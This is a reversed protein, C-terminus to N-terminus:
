NDSPNLAWAKKGSYYGRERLVKALFPNGVTVGHVLEPTPKFTAVKGKPRPALWGSKEPDLNHRKCVDRVTQLTCTNRGEFVEWPLPLEGWVFTNPDLGGGVARHWYAVDSAMLRLVKGFCVSELIESLGLAYILSMWNDRAKNWAGAMANWTSSDNGRRVIMTDRAINSHQWVAGLRVAIEQLITTWRGLLEGKQEDKLKEVVTADPYVHAIAFWNTTIAHAAVRNSPKFGSFFSSQMPSKASCRAFLMDAIEDYPREQSGATFVSRLNCRSTYYAIFCATNVDQSFDEWTVHHALGHKAINVLEFKKWEDIMSLLRKEMRTLVRFLKNYKRKSIDLGAAERQERNLRDKLFDNGGFHKRIEPSIYRIFAEVVVPNDADEDKPEAAEFLEGAKRLKMGMGVPRAFTQLMSTYAWLTRKLAGQAAKDLISLEQKNLDDKMIEYIMLAVDEPRKREQLTKYLRELTM